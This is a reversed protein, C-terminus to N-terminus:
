KDKKLVISEYLKVTLLYYILYLALFLVFPIWINKYPDPLLAKFFQLGFLVDVIGLIAPLSFLVGIEKAISQKLLRTQAGVKWLMQYRPRDSNAGSLVKFMLTSALMALFALGLFFGMFEFGSAVLMAAQYNFVKPSIGSYQKDSNKIVTEQIKAIKKWNREFNSIRYVNVVLAQGKLAQFQKQSVYKPLDYNTPLNQNFDSSDIKDFNKKNLVLTKYHAQANKVYFYQIKIKKKLIEDKSVYVKEGKMKFPIRETEEIGLNDIEAQYKKPNGPIILDYYQTQKNQETMGNFNLGVTIAGLALAFLLSVITLIRNYSYIRFKLQGLSFAHLGKFTYNANKRLLNIMMTFFSSFVLYSGSVITVLAVPISTEALLKVASMAWYGIALLIIGAIAMLILRANNKQLKVPQQDEHLLDILSSRTLKIRNWIAALFFLIAFFLLTWLVAPLYFGVFHHIVLQLQSILLNSIGQALFVGILIGVLTAILGVVLTESFILRGIKRNRAGLMMYTGYDRKRMSLLFSNAYVIYVLTIIALLVIGFGFVVQTIQYGIPLADKLFKPNLALALFMYFISASLTLGSFLVAYDKFRSKIGTLSLKWLM